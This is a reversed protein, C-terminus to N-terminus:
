LSSYCKYKMDIWNLRSPISWKLKGRQGAVGEKLCEVVVVVVLLLWWRVEGM